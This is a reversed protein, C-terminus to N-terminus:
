EIVTLWDAVENWAEDDEESFFDISWDDAEAWTDDVAEGWGFGDFADAEDDTGADEPNEPDIPEPLPAGPKLPRPRGHYGGTIEHEGLPILLFGDPGRVYGSEVEKVWELSYARANVTGRLEAQKGEWEVLLTYNRVGPEEFYVQFNSYIVTEGDESWYEWYLNVPSGDDFTLTVKIQDTDVNYPVILEPLDFATDAAGYDFGSTIETYDPNGRWLYGAEPFSKVSRTASEILVDNIEARVSVDHTGPSAYRHEALIVYGGKGDSQLSALETSGDGWDIVTQIKALVDAHIVTVPVKLTVSGNANTRYTTQGFRVVDVEDANLSVLPNPATELFAVGGHRKLEEATIPGDYLNDQAYAQTVFDLESTYTHSGAHVTVTLKRM